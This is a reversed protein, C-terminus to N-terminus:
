AVGLPGLHSKMSKQRSLTAKVFDIRSPSYTSVPSSANDKESRNLFNPLIDYVSSLVDTDYNRLAREIVESKNKKLCM